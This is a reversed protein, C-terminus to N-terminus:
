YAPNQADIKTFSFLGVTMGRPDKDGFVEHAGQYLFEDAILLFM